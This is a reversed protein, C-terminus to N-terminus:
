GLKNMKKLLWNTTLKPINKHVWYFAICRFGPRSFKAILKMLQNFPCISFKKNILKVSGVDYLCDIIMKFTAEEREILNEILLLINKKQEAELQESESLKSLNKIVEISNQRYQRSTLM